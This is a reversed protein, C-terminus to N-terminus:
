SEQSCCDGLVRLAGINETRGEFDSKRFNMYLCPNRLLVNVLSLESCAFVAGCGCVCVDRKRAHLIGVDYAAFNIDRSRIVEFTLAFISTLHCHGCYIGFNAITAVFTLLLPLFTGLQAVMSICCAAVLTERVFMKPEVKM